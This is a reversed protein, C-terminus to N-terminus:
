TRSTALDFVAHGFTTLDFVTWPIIGQDGIKDGMWSDMESFSVPKTLERWSKGM